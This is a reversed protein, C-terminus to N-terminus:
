GHAPQQCCCLPGLPGTLLQREARRRRSASEASPSQKTARWCLLAPEVAASADGATPLWWRRPTHTPAARRCAHLPAWRKRCRGRAPQASRDGRFARAGLLCLSPGRGKKRGARQPGGKTRRLPLDHRGGATEPTRPPRTPFPVHARGWRKARSQYRHRQWGGAKSSMLRTGVRRSGAAGAGVPALTGGRQAGGM